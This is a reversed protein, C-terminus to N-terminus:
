SSVAITAGVTSEDHVLGALVRGVSRRSVSMSKTEGDASVFPPRDDVEDTLGVPQVLSWALDSDRVAREQVETDAIQPALIASFLFRWKLSLRDRSPGVGYSSQVVLRRVGHTRMAAIVNKTGASRVDGATAAAGRFRVRLPDESIGLTVIVADHSAVAADVDTPNMVDGVFRGLREDTSELRSSPRVFATVSHGAALLADIAARGSGGTSGIVLVRM